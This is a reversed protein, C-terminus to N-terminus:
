EQVTKFKLYYKKIVIIIITFLIALTIFLFINPGLGESGTIDSDVLQDDGM